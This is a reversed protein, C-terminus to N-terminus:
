AADSLAYVLLCATVGWQLSKNGYTCKVDAWSVKCVSSDNFFYWRGDQHSNIYACFHGLSATGSHAGVAFLRYRPAPHEGHPLHEPDLFEPLDLLPPFSLRQNVKQLQPASRRKQLRKLHVSFMRPLSRLQTVLTLKRHFKTYSVKLPITLLDAPASRQHSCRQCTVREEIPITYLARMKEALRRDDGMQLLLLEFLVSFMEAVDNKTLVSMQLGQLCRLLRYPAVADEKSRQMERFLALLEHPLRRDELVNDGPDGVRCLLDTFEKNMYLTQLLPNLCNGPGINCLGAAGNRFRGTTYSLGTTPSPEEQPRELVQVDVYGDEQMRSWGAHDTHRLDEKSLRVVDGASVVLGLMGQQDSIEISLLQQSISTM